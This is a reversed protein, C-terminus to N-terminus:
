IKELKGAIFEQLVEKVKGRGFYVEIGFQKLVEFARPGINGAVVVKVNREAMLKAVAVGAGGMQDLNKNEVIQTTGIKQNEVEVFLFYPCRAFVASVQSELSKGESSIAIKV